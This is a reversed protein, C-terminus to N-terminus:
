ASPLADISWSGRGCWPSRITNQRATRGNDWRARVKTDPSIRAWRLSTPETALRLHETRTKARQGYSRLDVPDVGSQDALRTVAVPPATSVKDAVFGLWPLACRWRWAWGIRRVEVTDARIEQNSRPGWERRCVAIV